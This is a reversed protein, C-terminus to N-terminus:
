KIILTRALALCFRPFVEAADRRRRRHAGMKQGRRVRTIWGGRRDTPRPLLSAALYRVLRLKFNFNIERQRAREREREWKREKKRKERPLFPPKANALREEQEHSKREETIYSVLQRILLVNTYSLIFRLFKERFHFKLIQLAKDRAIRGFYPVNRARCSLLYIARWRLHSILLFGQNALYSM